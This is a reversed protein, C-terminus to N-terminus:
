PRRAVVIIDPSDDTLPSRDLDGYIEEIEFGGREVLLVLENRLFWRMDFAHVFLPTDEGGAGVLYYTLEVESIQDV